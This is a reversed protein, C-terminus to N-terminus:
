SSPLEDMVLEGLYHIFDSEQLMQILEKKSNCGLKRQAVLLYFEITRESRKLIESIKVTKLGKLLYASCQAERWLFYIGPYSDGLYYRKRISSPM